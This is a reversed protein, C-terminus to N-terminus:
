LLVNINVVQVCKQNEMNRKTVNVYIVYIEMSLVEIEVTNVIFQSELNRKIVKVNKVFPIRIKQM